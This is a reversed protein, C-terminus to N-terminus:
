SLSGETSRCKRRGGEDSHVLQEVTVQVHRLLLEKFRWSCTVEAPVVELDTLWTKMTGPLFRSESYTQGSRPVSQRWVDSFGRRHGTELVAPIGVPAGNGQCQKVRGWENNTHLHNQHALAKTEVM